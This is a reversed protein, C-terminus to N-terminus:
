VGGFVEEERKKDSCVEILNVTKSVLEEPLLKKQPEYQCEIIQSSQLLDDLKEKELDSNESVVSDKRQPLNDSISDMMERWLLISMVKENFRHSVWALSNELEDLTFFSFLLFHKHDLVWYILASSCEM